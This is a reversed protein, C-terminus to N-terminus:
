RSPTVASLIRDIMPRLPLGPGGPLINWGTFVVVLDHDPFVLPRQGGFGSGGWVFRNGDGYPYLWWKLGYKVDRAAIAPTTSDRVWEPRVITKGEWSGNRLFLYFIKALDHPHLYLGGETDPLGTPTRKWFYRDIGLPAFLHRAAYEEVDVGTVQRFVHSLIQTAGSNYRFASGPEAAMPRDIAFKVWDFSAEMVMTHNGPDSYPLDENWDIGATMTLLHRLKMHRKRSDVHEVPVGKFYDLVPTDLSPFENRAAAVGIVVSTITKTVSQMTHLDGRRYFPHWWPNFYNYQGSPDLPNLPGRSRAQEGYIRDYDHKYTREFAIKGRRVVLMSDVYGYKGSAIEADLAAFVKADLGVAQPTARRWGKTPWEPASAPPQASLSQAALVAAVVLQQL